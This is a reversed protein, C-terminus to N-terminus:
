QARFVPTQRHAEKKEEEEQYVVFQKKVFFVNNILVSVLWGLQGSAQQAASGDMILVSQLPVCGCNIGKGTRGSPNRLDPRRRPATVAAVSVGVGVGGGGGRVLERLAKNTRM